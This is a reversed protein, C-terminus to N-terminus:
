TQTHYLFFSFFFPTIAVIFAPSFFSLQLLSPLDKSCARYPLIHHTSTVSNIASATIGNDASVQSDWFVPICSTCSNNLHNASSSIFPWWMENGPTVPQPSSWSPDRLSPLTTPLSSVSTQASWSPPFFSLHCLSSTNLSTLSTFLNLRGSSANKWYPLKLLDPQPSGYKHRTDPGWLSKMFSLSLIDFINESHHPTSIQTMPSLDLLSLLGLLFCFTEPKSNRSEECPNCYSPPVTSRGPLLLIQSM